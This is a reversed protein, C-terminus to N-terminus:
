RMYDLLSLQSLKATASLAANFATTKQSLLVGIKAYDVNQIDGYINKLTNQNNAIMTKMNDLRVQRGAVDSIATSVQQAAAAANKVGDAIGAKDNAGIATILADITGLINVPSTGATAGSGVAAPPTGGLLLKGGSVGTPVNSGPAIEVNVVDDTGSFNGLTDFPPTNKFGAFVYQDGLRTNGMDILQSKLQTLNTVAGSVTTPDQTGSVMDGAIKKVQQLLGSMSTLATSTVDLLLDAKTINSSYQEGAAIQEQLDLLQRASLPDDSPRNINFGSSVQEQLTDISSRGKQLNYLANEATMGPTVRM